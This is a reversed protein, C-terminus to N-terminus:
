DDKKDGKIIFISWVIFICFMIVASSCVIFPALIALWTGRMTNVDVMWGYWFVLFLAISLVLGLLCGVLSSVKTVQFKM